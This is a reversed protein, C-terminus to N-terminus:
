NIEWTHKLVWVDEWRSADYESRFVQVLNASYNVQFLYYRGEIKRQWILAQSFRKGTKSM